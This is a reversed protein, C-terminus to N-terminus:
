ERGEDGREKRGEGEGEERRGEGCGSGGRGRGEREGEGEKREGGRREEGRGEGGEEGRLVLVEPRGGQLLIYSSMVPSKNCLKCKYAHLSVTM